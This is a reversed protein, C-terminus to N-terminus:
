FPNYLYDLYSESQLELRRLFVLVAPTDATYISAIGSASFRLPHDPDDETLALKVVFQEPVHLTQLAPLLGSPSFQAAGSGFIVQDVTADFVRGPYMDFAVEAKDGAGVRQSAVQPIVALITMAETNIFSVVPQKLRIFIGPRLQLNEAYGDSPAV